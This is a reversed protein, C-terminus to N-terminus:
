PDERQRGGAQGQGRPRAKRVPVRHRGSWSVAAGGGAAPSSLRGSLGNIRKGIELARRHLTSPPVTVGALNELRRSAEAFGSDGVTDAMLSAAGPTCSEGELGLVRDLPYHGGGCGRCRRYVREVTVPGLRTM